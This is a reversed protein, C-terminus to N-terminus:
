FSLYPSAEVKWVGGGSGGYGSDVLEPTMTLIIPKSAEVKWVGGGSGGYGPDVLEPTMTLLASLCDLGNAGLHGRRSSAKINAM